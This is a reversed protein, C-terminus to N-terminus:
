RPNAVFKCSYDKQLRNWGPKRTLTKEQTFVGKHPISEKVSYDVIYVMNEDSTRGHYKKNMIKKLVLLYIFHIDMGNWTALWRCIVLGKHEEIKSTTARLIRFNTRFRIVVNNTSNIPQLVRSSQIVM